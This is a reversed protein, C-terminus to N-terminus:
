PHSSQCMIQDRRHRRFADPSLYLCSCVFCQFTTASDGNIPVQKEKAVAAKIERSIAAYNVTGALLPHNLRIHRAIASDGSGVKTCCINCSCGFRNVSFISMRTTVSTTATSKQNYDQYRRSTQHIDNSEDDIGKADVVSRSKDTAPTPAPTVATLIKAASVVNPTSTTAVSPSLSAITPVLIKTYPNFIMPRKSPTKDEKDDSKKRKMVVAIM